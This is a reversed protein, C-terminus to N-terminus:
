EAKIRESEYIAQVMVCIVGMISELYNEQAKNWNHKQIARQLSPIVDPEDLLALNEYLNHFDLLDLMGKIMYVDPVLNPSEWRLVDIIAEIVPEEALLTARRAAKRVRAKERRKQNRMKRISVKKIRPDEFDSDPPLCPDQIDTTQSM